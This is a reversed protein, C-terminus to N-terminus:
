KNLTCKIDVMATTPAVTRKYTKLLFLDACAYMFHQCCTVNLMVMRLPPKAVTYAVVVHVILIVVMVNVVVELIVIDDVFRM